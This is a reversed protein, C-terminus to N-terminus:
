RVMLSTYERQRQLPNTGCDGKSKMEIWPNSQVTGFNQVKDANDANTSSILVLQQQAQQRKWKVYKEGTQLM